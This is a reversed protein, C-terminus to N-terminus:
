KIEEKIEGAIIGKLIARIRMKFKKELEKIKAEKISIFISINKYASIEKVLKTKNINPKESIIKIMKKAEVQGLGYKIALNLAQSIESQKLGYSRSAQAINSATSLSVSGVTRGNGGRPKNANIKNLLAPPAVNFVRLVADIKSRDLGIKNVVEKKSLGRKM